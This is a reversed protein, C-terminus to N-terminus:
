HFVRRFAGWVGGGQRGKGQQAEQAAPGVLAGPKPAQTAGAAGPAAVQRQALGQAAAVHAATIVFGRGAAAEGGPAGAALQGQRQAAPLDLDEDVTRTSCGSSCSFTQQLTRQQRPSRPEASAAAPAPAPAPTLATAETGARARAGTEERPEVAEEVEADAEAEAPRAAGGQQSGEGSGRGGGQQGGGPAPGDRLVAFRVQEGDDSGGSGLLQM